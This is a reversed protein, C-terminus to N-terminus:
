TLCSQTYSLDLQIGYSYTSHVTNMWTAPSIAAWADNAPICALLRYIPLFTVDSADVALNQVFTVADLENNSSFVM